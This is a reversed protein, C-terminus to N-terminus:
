PWIRVGCLAVLSDLWRPANGLHKKFVLMGPAMVMDIPLRNQQKVVRETFVRKRIGLRFRRQHLKM